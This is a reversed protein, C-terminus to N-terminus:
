MLKFMCCDCPSNCYTSDNLTLKVIYSGPGSYQHTVPQGNTRITPTGDGFDWIFTTDSFPYLAPEITTNTFQYRFEECPQLRTATFVPLAQTAGVKINM